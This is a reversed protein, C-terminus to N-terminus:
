KHLCSSVQLIIKCPKLPLRFLFYLPVIIQVRNMSNKFGNINRDTNNVYGNLFPLAAINCFSSSVARCYRSRDMNMISIDKISFKALLVGGARVLYVLFIKLEMPLVINIKM